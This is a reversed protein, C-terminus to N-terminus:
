REFKDRPMWREIDWKLRRPIKLFPVTSLIPLIDGYKEIFRFVKDVLEVDDACYTLIKGFYLALAHAAHAEDTEMLRTIIENREQKTVQANWLEFFRM